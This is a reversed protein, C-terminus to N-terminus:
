QTRPVTPIMIHAYPTGKWMVWPGGNQPDTPLGDLLAPDSVAVMIHPVGVQIWENGSVPGKAFPDTNSVPMDGQLMYSIAVGTYDPKRKNMWADIIELWPRDLCMPSNNPVDPMDPMCTWGNNGERLVQGGFDAVTAGEAVAPPAASLANQIVAEGDNAGGQAFAHAPLGMLAVLFTFFVCRMVVTHDAAGVFRPRQNGTALM